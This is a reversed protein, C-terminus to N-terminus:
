HCNPANKGTAHPWASWHDLAHICQAQGLPTFSGAQTAGGLSYAGVGPQKSTLHGAHLAAYEDYLAGHGGTPTTCNASSTGENWGDSTGLITIARGAAGPAVAELEAALKEFCATSRTCRGPQEPQPSFVDSASVYIELAIARCHDRCARLADGFSPLQGDLNYANVYLVVRRDFGAQALDDLLKVFGKSRSGGDKWLPADGLEDITIYDFGSTLQGIFWAKATGAPFWVDLTETLRDVTRAIKGGKAKWPDFEPLNPDTNAGRNITVTPEGGATPLLALTAPADGQNAYLGYFLFMPASTDVQSGCAPADATGDAEAAAEGLAGGEAEPPRADDDPPGADLGATKADPEDPLPSETAPSCGTALALLCAFFVRRM